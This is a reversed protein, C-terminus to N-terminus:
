EFLKLFKEDEEPVYPEKLYTSILEQLWTVFEQRDELSFTKYGINKIATHIAYIAQSKIFVAELERWLFIQNWTDHLRAINHKLVYELMEPSNISKLFLYWEMSLSIRFPGDKKYHVRRKNEM